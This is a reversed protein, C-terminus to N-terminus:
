HASFFLSCSVELFGFVCSWGLTAIELGPQEDVTKVIKIINERTKVVDRLEDNTTVIADLPTVSIFEVLDSLSKCFRPSASYASFSADGSTSVCKEVEQVLITHIPSQAQCLQQFAHQWITTPTHTTLSQNHITLMNIHSIPGDPKPQSHTLSTKLAPVEDKMVPREDNPSLLEESLDQLESEDMRASTPRAIDEM